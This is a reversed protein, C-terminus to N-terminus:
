GSHSTSGTASTDRGDPGLFMGCSAAVDFGVRAIVVVRAGPLRERYIAANREVVAEPPETGHRAPDFPNYRVVNIHAMLKREELADCIAHVDGETDNEGAIYAHHLVVLKLSHRQWAALRDLAVEAPHAKPLWRRRFRESVSYISYHIEPQHVVFVDELARDGFAKPYITSILHRPRLGSGVALRSLEGLLEDGRTAIVKSALPEGRAMLNFHVARAPKGERRYHALVTEAQELFENFTTDRLHTQGTATLHCMRCAQACGTQSSLYAVFYDECRRVYRAELRGVEAPRDWNVSADLASKHATFGAGPLLPLQM